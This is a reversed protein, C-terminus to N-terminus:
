KNQVQSTKYINCLLDPKVLQYYRSYYTRLWPSQIVQDMTFRQSENVNLMSKLLSLMRETVYHHRQWQYLLQAINGKKIFNHYCDDDRNPKKYPPAGVAMM